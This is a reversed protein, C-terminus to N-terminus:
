EASKLGSTRAYPSADVAVLVLVLPAVWVLLAMRPEFLIHDPSLGVSGDHVMSISRPALRLAGAM